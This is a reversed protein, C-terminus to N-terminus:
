PHRQHESDLYITFFFRSRPSVSFKETREASQASPTCLHLADPQHSGDSHTLKTSRRDEPQTRINRDRLRSLSLHPVGSCVRSQPDCDVPPCPCTSSCAFLQPDSSAGADWKSLHHSSFM